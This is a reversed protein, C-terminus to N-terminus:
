GGLAKFKLPWKLFSDAFCLFDHYRPLITWVKRFQTTSSPLSYELLLTIMLQMMMVRSISSSQLPDYPHPWVTLIIGEGRGGLRGSAINSNIKIILIGACIMMSILGPHMNKFLLRACTIFVRALVHVICVHQCTYYICTSARTTYVHALMHLICVHQCMYYVCTSAPLLELNHIPHVQCLSSSRGPCLHLQVYGLLTGCFIKRYIKDM